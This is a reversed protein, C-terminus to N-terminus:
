RSLRRFGRETVIGQLPIDWPAREIVDVEQAAFAYGCIFPRHRPAQALYRDYYGAGAGLRSGAADFAVLPLLILDLTGAFCQPGVVPSPIGFAGARLPGGFWQQFAMRGDRTIRPLYLATRPEECLMTLLPQTDLESGYAIYAGINRAQLRRALFRAHIAARQAAHTRYRASLQKRARRGARRLTERDTPM